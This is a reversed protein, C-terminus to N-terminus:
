FPLDVVPQEAESGIEDTKIFELTRAILQFGKRKQGAEGEWEMQDLTGIVAVRAGRHLCQEALEALRDFCLVGIWGTRSRSARFALSFSTVPQDECEGFYWTEPDHGLNGGRVCQNLM